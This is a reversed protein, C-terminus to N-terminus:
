YFLINFSIKIKVHYVNLKCNGKFYGLIMLLVLYKLFYNVNVRCGVKIINIGVFIGNKLKEM